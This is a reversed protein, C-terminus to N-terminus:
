LVLRKVHIIVYAVVGVMVIILVEGPILATIINYVATVYKPISIILNLITTVGHYIASFLSYLLDIM